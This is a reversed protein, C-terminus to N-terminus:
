LQSAAAEDLLWLTETKGQVGTAPTDDITGNGMARAVAEAKGEGSVVFWVAEANNLTPFTMTVRVPPPKPSNFVEVVRRQTEHLQEFGPFLSAVHGDPGMGLLVLDFPETPLEAGYADAADSTSLDCGHAPMSHIREAPVGLRTLFADKAQQDNRDAHGEPVFREDGWYFDVNTWDVNGAELAEYAAIAITGGTLVVSPRRGAAQIDAVRISMLSAITSALTEADPLVETRTM